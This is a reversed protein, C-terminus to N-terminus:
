KVGAKDCDVTALFGYGSYGHTEDRYAFCIGTKKNKIFKLSQVVRDADNQAENFSEQREAMMYYIGFSVFCMLVIFIIIEKM